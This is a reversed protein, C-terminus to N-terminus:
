KNRFKLVLGANVFLGRMLINWNAIRLRNWTDYATGNFTLSNMQMPQNIFGTQIFLGFVKGFYKNYGLFFTNYFGNGILRGENLISDKVQYEFSFGGISTGFYASSKERNIFHFKLNLGICGASVNKVKTTDDMIYNQSISELGLSIQEKINYDLGLFAKSSIYKKQININGNGERNMFEAGGGMYINLRGKDASQSFFLQSFFLVAILLYNKM